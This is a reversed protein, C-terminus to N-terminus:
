EARLAVLPDVKAARRAPIYCALLAVWVLLLAIVVFTMPDTASVGFLLGSMLRTLALAAGSGIAVGILALVMGQAIVLKLVNGAQAGLAMRVGIERTRENVTYSMVGYIGVAALSLALAAFVGLLVTYLRPEALSNNLAQEATQIQTPAQDRDIAWIARQADNRVASLDNHAARVVIASSYWPRQLYPAYIQPIVPAGLEGQKMDAAVGVIELAVRQRAMALSLRKGLPDEGAFYRRALTENVIAVAPSRLDDREDFERGAVIRARMARFYNPSITEYLADADAALPRGEINFGFHLGPFLFGSTVAASEVGPTQSVQDFVQKVFRARQEDGGEFPFKSRTQLSMSFLNRPDFGLEARSMRAFSNILLGAGVLLVMALAIEAVVLAGRLRQRRLGDGGRGGEKLENNVAPNSAQWAPVLGFIVGTILSILLTFLVITQDVIGPRLQDQLQYYAYYSEPLLRMLGDLGWQGLLLGAAGGLAALLLSEILLQRLLRWRPAGLALRIAMEKRRSGARALLLNAINACGILLVCGVVGLLILLREKLGQTRREVAPTINTTINKNSDPYQAELRAAIAKFESQASELTQGSKILGFSVWYRNARVSTESAHLTIPTWCEAYTPYKFDPPMVGIVTVGTNGLTQGVVGPDGGFRRQWLRYSLLITRPPATLEDEPLFERGLMPKAGFVQFFNASVRSSAFIEPREVGTLKFGESPAYAALREFTQSNAQWDLFDAPSAGFYGRPDSRKDGSEIFVLRPDKLYPLPKLLVANIVSFIATNAGIGLALTLVAILTFGPNKLLMRAGFRLDQIFSEMRMGGKREILELSPQLARATLPQEARSLECELLRWDYSRVARAEAEAESLGASLADEYAAELHLALEEVIEIEREPPLRLVVLHQRVIHNWNPM